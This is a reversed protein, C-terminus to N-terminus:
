KLTCFDFSCWIRKLYKISFSVAKQIYLQINSYIYYWKKIRFLWQEV